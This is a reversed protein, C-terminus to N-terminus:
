MKDADPHLLKRAAAVKNLGETTYYTVDMNDIKTYPTELRIMAVPNEWLKVTHPFTAGAKNQTTDNVVSTPPGFKASLGDLIGSLLNDSSQINISYLKGDLFKYSIDDSGGDGVKLYASRLGLYQQKAFYQCEVVGIKEDDDSQYIHLGIKDKNAPENSCIIQPPSEVPMATAPVPLARWEDMTMGLRAGKFDYWVAPIPAPQPKPVPKAAPKTTTPKAAKQPAAQAGVAILTLATAIVYKM